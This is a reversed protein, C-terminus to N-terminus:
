YYGVRENWYFDLWTPRWELNQIGTEGAAKISRIIRDIEEDRGLEGTCNKRYWRIPILLSVLEMGYERCKEQAINIDEVKWYGKNDWDIGQGDDQLVVHKHGIQAM